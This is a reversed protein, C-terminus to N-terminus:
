DTLVMVQLGVSGSFEGTTRTHDSWFHVDVDDGVLDTTLVMVFEGGRFRVQTDGLFFRNGGPGMPWENLVRDTAVLDALKKLKVKM